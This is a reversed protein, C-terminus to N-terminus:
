LYGAVDEGSIVEPIVVRDAGARNALSEYMENGVRVVVTLSPALQSSAIAIQVNVNSDDVAAVLSRAREIGCEELVSDRRADGEVVLYGEERAQEAVATDTEIVVIDHGDAALRRAITRGFMGYGCIVTHDTLKMIHRQARALQVETRIQGGFAASLVTEGAWLSTVILGSRVVLAYVKTLEVPGAHTQFYLEISTPDLLWFAADVVGVNVLIMFGAVGLGFIVVFAFAPRSARRLFPRNALLGLYRTSMRRQRTARVTDANGKQRFFPAVTIFKDTPHRNPAPVVASLESVVAGM